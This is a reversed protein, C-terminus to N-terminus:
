GQGHLVVEGALVQALALPQASSREDWFLSLIRWTRNERVLQISNVGHGFPRAASESSKTEYASWVHAADGFRHVSRGTEREFFSTYAGTELMERAFEQFGPLDLYDTREPTMRTVRASQVFLAAMGPWDPEAGEEFSISAYLKKLLEDIDPDCGFAKTGQAPDGM